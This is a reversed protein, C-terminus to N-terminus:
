DYDGRCCWGYFGHDRFHRNQDLVRERGSAKAANINGGVAFVYRGLKTHHLIIYALIALVILAIVPYPILDWLKGSGINRFQINALSQSYGGSLIYAIGRIVLQTALTVVFPFM